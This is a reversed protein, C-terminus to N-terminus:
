EKICRVSYGNSKLAHFSGIGTSTDYISYYYPNYINYESATWWSSYIGIYDFINGIYYGGGPLGNFSSSNILVSDHKTDTNIHACDVIHAYNTLSDHKTKWYSNSKLKAGAVESGGM